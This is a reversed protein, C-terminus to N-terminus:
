KVLVEVSVKIKRPEPDGRIVLELVGPMEFLGRWSPNDYSAAPKGNVSTIVDGVEIGARRAPSGDLVYRVERGGEVPLAGFGAGCVSPMAIPADDARELIVLERENFFTVAFHKMVNYGLYAIESHIDVTPDAITATGLMLGGKVRAARVPLSGSAKLVMGVPVPAAEFPVSNALAAPISTTTAGSDVAFSVPVGALTARITPVGDQVDFFVTNWVKAETLPPRQSYVVLESKPYDLTFLCDAFARFGVIGDFFFDTQVASLDFVVCLCEEFVVGGMRLSDVQVVRAQQPAAGSYDEITIDGSFPLDLKEAVSDDILGVAGVGTDVLFRYPGEGNVRVEVIPHCSSVDMPVVVREADFETRSPAPYQASADTAPVGLLCAAAALLSSIISRPKRMLIPGGTRRFGALRELIPV